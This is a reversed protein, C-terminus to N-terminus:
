VELFMPVAKAVMLASFVVVHGGQYVELWQCEEHFTDMMDELFAFVKDSFVVVSSVVGLGKLCQCEVLSEENSGVEQCM